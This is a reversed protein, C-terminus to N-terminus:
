EEQTVELLAHGEMEVPEGFRVRLPERFLPVDHVFTHYEGREGCPDIEPHAALDVTFSRDVQRGLWCSPTRALDVSVLHARYGRAIVEDLIESGPTEWLPEVHQFGRSTTREEYWARIDELHLNGFIIGGIGERKLRDLVRLFTTEYGNPDTSEQILPIALAAAQAGILAARIGHFRVRQSAQDVINFLYEVELGHSVARDLALVSDKGGSFSVAYRM